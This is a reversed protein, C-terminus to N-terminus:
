YKKLGNISVWIMVFIFMIGDLGNVMLMSTLINIKNGIIVLHEMTKLIGVVRQSKGYLNYDVIDKLPVSMENLDDLDYDRSSMVGELMNDSVGVKVIIDGNNDKLITKGDRELRELPLYDDTSNTFHDYPNKINKFDSVKMTRTKFSKMKENTIRKQQNLKRQKTQQKLQFGNLKKNKKMKRLRM